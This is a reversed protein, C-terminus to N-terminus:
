GYIMGPIRDILMARQVQCPKRNECSSQRDTKVCLSLAANM